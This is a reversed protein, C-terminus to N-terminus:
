ISAKHRVRSLYGNAGLPASCKSPRHVKTLYVRLTGTMCRGFHYVVNSAPVPYIVHPAPRPKSTLAETRHTLSSASPWLTWTLPRSQRKGRSMMPLRNLLCPRRHRHRSSASPAIVPRKAMLTAFSARGQPRYLRDAPEGNPGGPVRPCQKCAGRRVAIPTDQARGQAVKLQVQLAPHALPARRGPAHRPGSAMQRSPRGPNKWPRGTSM